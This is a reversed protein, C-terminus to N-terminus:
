KKPAAAGTNSLPPGTLVETEDADSLSLSDLWEKMAAENRANSGNNFKNARWDGAIAKVAVKLDEGKLQKIWVTAAPINARGWKLAIGHIAAHRDDASELKVAWHSAAPQDKLYWGDGVSFFSIYRAYKPAEACWAAAAAPDGRSSWVFLLGHLPGFEPPRSHQVAWDASAKGNALACAAVVGASVSFPTDRPLQQSWALAATPDKKAWEVAAALLGKTKEDGKPLQLAKQVDPPVADAGQPNSDVGANLAPLLAVVGAAVILCPIYIFRRM